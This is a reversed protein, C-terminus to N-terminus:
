SQESAPAKESVEAAPPADAAPKKNRLKDYLRVFDADLEKKTFVLFMAYIWGGVMVGVPIHKGLLLALLLEAVVYLVVVVAAAIFNHKRFHALVPPLSWLLLSLLLLLLNNLM